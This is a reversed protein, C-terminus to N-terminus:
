SADGKDDLAGQLSEITQRIFEPHGTFSVAVFRCRVFRTNSFGIAGPVKTGVAEVMLNKPDTAVGMNCNEFTVNEQALLLAPGEILCDTFTKGDIVRAGANLHQVGYAPLWIRTKEFAAREVLAKDYGPKDSNNAADTM